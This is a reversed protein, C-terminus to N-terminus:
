AATARHDAPLVGGGDLVILEIIAPDAPIVYQIVPTQAAQRSSACEFRVNDAARLAPIGVAM